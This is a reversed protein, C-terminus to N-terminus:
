KEGWRGERGGESGAEGRARVEGGVEGGECKEGVEGGERM